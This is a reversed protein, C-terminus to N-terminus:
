PHRALEAKEAPTLDLQAARALHKRAEEPKGVYRLAEGWKLHLRGWNPAYQNAAAFKALALHSQNKAMLAEGWGELPDAFRPGKQNALKFKEIAEDTQGRALLSQGWDFYAFPISPGAQVARTFWGDALDWQGVVSAVLGRARVCDYCDKPTAEIAARASAADGSRALAYALLPAVQIQLALAEGQPSLTEDAKVEAEYAHASAIAAPWDEAMVNHFYRVRSIYVGRPDFRNPPSPPEAMTRAIMARSTGGEHARALAEARFILQHPLPCRLCGGEAAAQAFDGLTMDRAFAGEIQIVHLGRGQQAYPQDTELFTPMRRALRLAQEDHGMFINAWMMERFGIIMKPNAEASIQARALALPMDGTQSRTM